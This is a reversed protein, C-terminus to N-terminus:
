AMGPVHSRVIMSGCRGFYLSRKRFYVYDLRNRFNPVSPKDYQQVCMRAATFISTSYEYYMPHHHLFLRGITSKEQSWSNISTRDPRLGTVSGSCFSLHLRYVKWSVGERPAATKLGALMNARPLDAVLDPNRALNEISHLTYEDPLSYPQVHTGATAARYM